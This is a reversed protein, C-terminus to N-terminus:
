KKCHNVFQEFTVSKKFHLWLLTEIMGFSSKTWNNAIIQWPCYYFGVKPRVMHKSKFFTNQWPPVMGGVGNAQDKNVRTNPIHKYTHTIYPDRAM